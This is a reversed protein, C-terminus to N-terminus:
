RSTTAYKRVGVGGAWPYQLSSLSAKPTFAARAHGTAHSEHARPMHKLGAVLSIAAQSPSPCTRWQYREREREYVRAHCALM